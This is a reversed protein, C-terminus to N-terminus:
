VKATTDGSVKAFAGDTVDTNSFTQTASASTFIQVADKPSASNYYTNGSLKFAAMNYKNAALAPSSGASTMVNNTMVLSGQWHETGTGKKYYVTQEKGTGTFKNGTMTVNPLGFCELSVEGVNSTTNNSFVFHGQHGLAYPSWAKFGDATTGSVTNGTETIYDGKIDIGDESVNTVKTNTVTINKAYGAPSSRYTFNIGDGDGDAGRGDNVNNITLKDLKVNSVNGIGAIGVGGVDHISTNTVTIDHVGDAMRIGRGDTGSGVKGCNGLNMSDITIHNAGSTYNGQMNFDRMFNKVTFGKFTLNSQGKDLIMFDNIANHGDVVVSSGPVAEVTIPSGAAGSKAPDLKGWGAKTGDYTGGKIEITDGAKAM